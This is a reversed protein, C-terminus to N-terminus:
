GLLSPVNATSPQSTVGLPGTLFTATLGSGGGRALRARRVLEDTLDPPPPPTAQKPLAPLDGGGLISMGGEVAAKTVTYPFAIFDLLGWGM